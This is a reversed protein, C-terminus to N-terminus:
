SASMLNMGVSFSSYTGIISIISTLSLAITPVCKPCFLLDFFKMCHMSLAIFYLSTSVFPSVILVSLPGCNLDFAVSAYM